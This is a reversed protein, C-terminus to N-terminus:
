EGVALNLGEKRLQLLYEALLAAGDLADVAPAPDFVTRSRDAITGAVNSLRVLTEAARVVAFPAGKGGRTDIWRVIAPQSLGALQEGDAFAINTVAIVDREFAVRLRFRRRRETENSEM